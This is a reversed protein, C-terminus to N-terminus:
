GLEAAAAPAPEQALLAAERAEAALRQARKAKIMLVLTAVVAIWGFLLSLLAVPVFWAPLM